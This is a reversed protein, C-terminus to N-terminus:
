DNTLTKKRLGALMFFKSSAADNGCNNRITLFIPM